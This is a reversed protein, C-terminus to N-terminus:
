KLDITFENAQGEKVEVLIDTTKPNNYKAPIKSKFGGPPEDELVGPEIEKATAAAVTVRYKGPPIGDKNGYTSLTFSGVGDTVGFSRIKDDISYFGVAAEAVPEGKYKVFGSAATTPRVEQQYASQDGGCGVVLCLGIFGAIL